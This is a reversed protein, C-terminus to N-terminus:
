LSECAEGDDNGDLNFIDGYGLKKCYDYCNQAEKGSKFDSCNLDPGDCDCPKPAKSVSLEKKNGEQKEGCREHCECWVKRGSRWAERQLEKFLDNYKLNHPTPEYTAYGQSILISNIMAKGVADLYAYVLLQGQTNRQNEGLELWVNKGDVLNKNYVLAEDGYCEDLRPADAGIYRIEEVGGDPYRVIISNGNIVETVYALQLKQPSDGAFVTLSVLFILVLLYVMLLKGNM